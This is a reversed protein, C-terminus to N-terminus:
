QSVFSAYWGHPAPQCGLAVRKERYRVTQMSQPASGGTRPRRGGRGGRAKGQQPGLKKGGPCPRGGGAWPPGGLLKHLIRMKPFFSHCQTSLRRPPQKGGGTRQSRPLPGSLLRCCSLLSGWLTGEM